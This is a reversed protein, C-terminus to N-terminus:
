FRLRLGVTAYQAGGWADSVLGFVGSRHHFRFLLEVEPRSPLAFTIEPSFFHMWRSGEDDRAREQEVASIGTAYNLGTSVAATTILVDDWPFGHYRFFLAGWLETDHQEGFRQGIGLEPELTLRDGFFRGSVRSVATAVIYDDRYDWASPPAPQTVLDTLADNVYPGAYVAVGCDGRCPAFLAAPTWAAAPGPMAPLALLLTRWGLAKLRV